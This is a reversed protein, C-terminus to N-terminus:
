IQEISKKIAVLDEYMKVGLEDQNHVSSDRMIRVKNYKDIISDVYNSLDKVDEKITSSSKQIELQELFWEKNERVYDLIDDADVTVNAKTEFDWPYGM